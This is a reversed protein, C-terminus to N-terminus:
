VMRSRHFACKAEQLLRSGALPARTTEKLLVELWEKQTSQDGTYFGSAACMWPGNGDHAIPRRPFLQSRPCDSHAMMVCPAYTTVLSAIFFRVALRSGALLALRLYSKSEHVFVRADLM